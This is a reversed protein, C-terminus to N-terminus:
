FFYTTNTLSIEPKTVIFANNQYNHHINYINKYPIASDFLSISKINKYNDPLQMSWQNAAPYKTM